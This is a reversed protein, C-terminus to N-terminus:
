LHHFYSCKIEIGVFFADKINKHLRDLAYISNMTVCEYLYIHTFIKENKKKYIYIHSPIKLFDFARNDGAIQKATPAFLIIFFRKEYRLGSSKKRPECAYIISVFIYAQAHTCKSWLKHIAKYTYM